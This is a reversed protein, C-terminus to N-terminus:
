YESTLLFVRDILYFKYQGPPCDTFEIHRKWLEKYDGDTAVIDAEDDAVTMTVTIFPNADQLEAVETGIIDIFWHCGAKDAFYRVGDTLQMTGLWFPHYGETGTFNQLDQQLSMM